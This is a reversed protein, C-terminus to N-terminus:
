RGLPGTSASATRLLAVLAERNERWALVAHRERPLELTITPIGLDIGAWSGLSGPTPYGISARTPYGNKETMAEAFHRAPGDYNNCHRGGGISHIAVILAPRTRAIVDLVALTEPESAPADGRRLSRGPARRWNRAPFNRNLDVGRENARTGAALGDPNSEPVIVVRAGQTLEPRRRLEDLLDRTVTASTPEDGHIGGIVLVTPGDGGFDWAEIPRDRRSRGVEFRRPQGVDDSPPEDIPASACGAADAIVLVLALWATQVRGSTRSM